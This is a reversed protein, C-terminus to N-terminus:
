MYIQQFNKLETYWGQPGLQPKSNPAVVRRITLLSVDLGGSSPKSKWAVFDSNETREATVIRKWEAVWLDKSNKEEVGWLNKKGPQRGASSDKIKWERGGLLFDAQDSETSGQAGWVVWCKDSLDSTTEESWGKIWLHLCGIGAILRAELSRGIDRQLSGM